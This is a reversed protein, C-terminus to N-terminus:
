LHRIEDDCVRRVRVPWERARERSHTSRLPAAELANGAQLQAMREGHRLVKSVRARRVDGAVVALDNGCPNVVGSRPPSAAVLFATASVASYSDCRYHVAPDTPVVGTVALPFFQTPGEADVAVSGPEVCTGSTELSLPGSPVDLKYGGLSTETAITTGAVAVHGRGARGRTRIRANQGAAHNKWQTEKRQPRFSFHARAHHAPGAAVCDPGRRAVIRRGCTGERIARLPPIPEMRAPMSTASSAAMGARRERHRLSRPRPRTAACGELAGRPRPLRTEMCALLRGRGM